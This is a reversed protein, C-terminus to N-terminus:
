TDKLNVGGEGMPTWEDFMMDDYWLIYNKYEGMPAWVTKNELWKM